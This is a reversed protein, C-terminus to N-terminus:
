GPLVHDDAVVEGLVTLQRQGRDSQRGVDERHGVAGRDVDATEGLAKGFPPVPDGEGQPLQLRVAIQPPDTLVRLVSPQHRPRVGVVRGHVRRGGSARLGHPRHLPTRSRATGTDTVRHLCDATLCGLLATLGDGLRHDRGTRRSGRDRVRRRRHRLGGDGCGGLHRRLLGGAGCRQVLFRDRQECAQAAGVLAERQGQTLHAPQGRGDDVPEFPADARHRQAVGQGGIQGDDHLVRRPHEGVTQAFQQGRRKWGGRFRWRDRAM